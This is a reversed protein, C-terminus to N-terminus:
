SFLSVLVITGIFAFGMYPSVAFASYTMFGVVIAILLQKIM